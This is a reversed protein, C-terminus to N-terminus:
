ERLAEVPRLRSAQISPLLGSIIGIFLSFVVAGILLPWSVTVALINSGFAGEAIKSVGFAMGLGILAGVIGGALGLFGAEFIFLLQVDRNRAGIAKMVGIERTRELVSTYMTNAIGIGGVVLSIAAMGVVIINIITLITNITSIAQIPTQITFDEEDPEQNRDRRLKEEIQKAVTEIEDKDNVQVVVFDYEDNLNFLDNMDEEPMLIAGNIQFSSAKQLVGVVEFEQGQIIVKSGTKVPRGYTDKDTFDDGVLVKKRDGANLLRGEAIKIGGTTYIIEIQKQNAPM